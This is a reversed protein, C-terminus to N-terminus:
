LYRPNRGAADFRLVTHLHGYEGLAQWVAARLEDTVHHAYRRWWAHLADMSIRDGRLGSRFTKRDLLPLGRAAFVADLANAGATGNSWCPPFFVPDLLCHAQQQREQKVRNAEDASWLAQVPVLQGATRESEPLDWERKGPHLVQRCVLHTPGADAAPAPGAEVEVVEAFPFQELPVISREPAAPPVPVAFPDRCRQTVDAQHCLERVVDLEEAGLAKAEAELEARDLGVRLVLGGECWHLLTRPQDAPHWENCLLAYVRPGRPRKTVEFFRLRHMASWLHQVQTATWRTHNDFWWGAWDRLGDENAAPPRLGVDQVWDLFIPEPLDTQDHLHAGCAFPCVVARVAAERQQADAQARALTPFRALPTLGPALRWGREFRRWNRRSVVFRGSFPDGM